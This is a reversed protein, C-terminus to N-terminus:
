FSGTIELSSQTPPIPPIVAEAEHRLLLSEAQLQLGAGAGIYSGQVALGMPGSVTANTATVAGSSTISSASLLGNVTASGATINNANLTGNAAISVNGGDPNIEIEGLETGSSKIAQIRTYGGSAASIDLLLSTFGGQATNPNGIVIGGPGQPDVNLKASPTSTGIGVNGSPDVRMAEISDDTTIIIPPITSTM